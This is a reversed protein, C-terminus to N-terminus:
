LVPPFALRSPLIPRWLSPISPCPPACPLALRSQLASTGTTIRTGPGRPPPRWTTPNACTPLTHGAPALPGQSCPGPSNSPPPSLLPCGRPALLSVMPSYDTRSPSARCISWIRCRRASASRSSTASAPLHPSAAASPLAATCTAPCLTLSCACLPTSAAPRRRCEVAPCSACAAHPTPSTHIRLPALGPLTAPYAV